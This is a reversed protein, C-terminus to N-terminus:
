REAEVFKARWDEPQSNHVSGEDLTISTHLAEQSTQSQLRMGAQYNRTGM